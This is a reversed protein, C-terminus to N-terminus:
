LRFAEGISGLRVNQEDHNPESSEVIRRAVFLSIPPEEKLLSVRVELVFNEEQAELDALDELSRFKRVFLANNRNSRLATLDIHMESVVVHLMESEIFGRTIKKFNANCFRAMGQQCCVLYGLKEKQPMMSEFVELIRCAQKSEDDDNDTDGAVTNVIMDFTPRAKIDLHNEVDSNRRSSGSVKRVNFENEKSLFATDYNM